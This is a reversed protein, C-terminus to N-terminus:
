GFIYGGPLIVLGIVILIIGFLFAKRVLQYIGIGILIVGLIWILSM